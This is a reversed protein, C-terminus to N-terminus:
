MENMLDHLSELASFTYNDPKSIYKQSQYQSSKKQVISRVAAVSEPNKLNRYGTKMYGFFMDDFDTNNQKKFLSLYDDLYAAETEKSRMVANHLISALLHPETIKAIKNILAKNAIIEDDSSFDVYGRLIKDANTSDATAMLPEYFSKLNETKHRQYYIMMGQLLSNKVSKNSGPYLKIFKEITEQEGILALRDIFVGKKINNLGPNKLLEWQKAIHETTEQAIPIDYYEAFQEFPMSNIEDITATQWTAKILPTYNKKIEGKFNANQLPWFGFVVRPILFKSNIIQPYGAAAFSYGVFTDCPFM